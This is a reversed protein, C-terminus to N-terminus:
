VIKQRCREVCLGFEVNRCLSEVGSWWDRRARCRELVGVLWWRMVVGCSSMVWVVIVVLVLVVGVFLSWVWSWM